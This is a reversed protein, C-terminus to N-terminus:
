GVLVCINRNRDSQPSHALPALLTAMKSPLCMKIIKNPGYKLTDKSGFLITQARTNTDDKPQPKNVPLSHQPLIYTDVACGIFEVILDM